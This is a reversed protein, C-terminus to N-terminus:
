IPERPEWDSNPPSDEESRKGPPGYTLKGPPPWAHHEYPPLEETGPDAASPSADYENGFIDGGPMAPLGDGLRRLSWEHRRSPVDQRTRSIRDRLPSAFLLGATVSGILLVIVIFVVTSSRQTEVPVDVALVATPLLALLGFALVTGSLTPRARSGDSLLRTKPKSAHMKLRIRAAKDATTLRARRITSPVLAVDCRWPERRVHRAHVLTWGLYCGITM